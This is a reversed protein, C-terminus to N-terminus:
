PINQLQEEPKYPDAWQASTMLRILLDNTILYNRFNAIYTIFTKKTLNQYLSTVSM